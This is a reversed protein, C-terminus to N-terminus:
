EDARTRRGPPPAAPTMIARLQAYVEPHELLDFHGLGRGIWCHAEPFGLRRAPNEHRGLASAVPVLVDRTGALTFCAVGAPLPTSAGHRLDTIGAGRIMGLRAIPASYPSVGLLLELWRGGRELPAGLHPTGLFVLKDLRRPWAHGAEAAYHCASRAVLGGMSHALITLEADREALLAALVGALERGNESVHRGSNYLLYMPEVELDRALAEGHDHGGREWGRDNMCVGHILLVLRRRPEGERRRLQMPIALPNDSALLYDGLVGNLAAVLAERTPSAPSARM